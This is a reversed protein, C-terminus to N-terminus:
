AASRATRATDRLRLTVPATLRPWDPEPLGMMTGLVVPLGSMAATLDM